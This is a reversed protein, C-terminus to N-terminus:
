KAAEPEASLREIMADWREDATGDLADGDLHMVHVEFGARQLLKILHQFAEPSLPM